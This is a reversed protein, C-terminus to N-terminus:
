NKDCIAYTNMTYHTVAIACELVHWFDDDEYKGNVYYTM